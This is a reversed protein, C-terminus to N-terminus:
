GISDQEADNDFNLREREIVRPYHTLRALIEGVYAGVFGIFCLQVGGLFFMGILIPATGMPFYQWFALKLVLYVAGILFSLGGILFGVLTALHLPVRSTNILSAMALSYYSFFNYSSRGSHRAPQEFSILAPEFGLEPVINRFLPNPDHARRIYEIVERDYLGFGTIQDYQKVSSMKRIIYYYLSRIKWMFWSEESNIKQAWVVKSGKEWERLFAPILSSPTQLDCAMCIVADGDTHFFAHVDSREAGYNRLNFIVKVHKDKEAIDRLIQPTKDDSHNDIFLIEYDYTPLMKMQKTVQQYVLAVNGEENFCPIEIGIKKM